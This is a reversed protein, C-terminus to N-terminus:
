AYGKLSRPAPHHTLNSFMLLLVDEVRCKGLMRKQSAIYQFLMDVLRYWSTTKLLFSSFSFAQEWHAERGQSKSHTIWHKGSSGGGNGGSHEKTILNYKFRIAWTECKHQLLECNRDGQHKRICYPDKWPRVDLDFSRLAKEAVKRSVWLCKHNGLVGNAAAILHSSNNGAPALFESINM